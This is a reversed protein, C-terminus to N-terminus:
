QRQGTDKVVVRAGQRMIIRSITRYAGAIWIASLTWFVAIAVTLTNLPKSQHLPDGDRIGPHSPNLPEIDSDRIIVAPRPKHRM